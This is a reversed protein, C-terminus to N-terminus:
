LRTTVAKTDLNAGTPAIPEAKDGLTSRDARFSLRSRSVGDITVGARRATQQAVSADIEAQTPASMAPHGPMGVVVTM